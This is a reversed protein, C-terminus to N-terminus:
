TIDPYGEALKKVRKVAEDEGIIQISEFLPPTVLQGSVSVRILQFMQKNSLKLEIALNKFAEEFKEATWPKEISELTEVVKGLANKPDSIELREFVSLEYEPGEFLFNTLPVFDSLKKIREKILPIVPGIKEKSPHDVLFEELRKTLEEDSMQRIYEGNVWELKQLDFRPAQSSILVVKPNDVDFAKEFESFPYIEKGEPHNWVINTMYNLIAEPLFGEKKYYDVSAHGFRKSLKGKGDSNLILPLHTYTPIAEEWGFYQYLLIHKPTSPVWEKGRLIHTIKMLYDDVVVALHYTPFGDSKLIVQHDILNTDFEIEGSLTDRFKVKQNEPIKMRVVYPTKADLKQKVESESLHLCTKDYMPAQNKAQQDQRMQELREKTCFCYYAHGKDLLIQIHKQYIDLRESQRYPAYPGGVQPDEDAILGFWELSKYIVEEAGEVLRVQDTDELRNIFEGDYKKALTYDFMAQYITGIHPFGTPSPAIRTRVKM